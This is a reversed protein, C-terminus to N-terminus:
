QTPDMGNPDIVVRTHDTPDVLVSLRAGAATFRARREPTSFGVRTVATFGNGDPPTIDLTIDVVGAPGGGVMGAPISVEHATLVVATARQMGSPQALAAAAQEPTTGGGAMGPVPRGPAGTVVTRTTTFGATGSGSAAIREAEARAQQRGMERGTLVEDWIIRLRQPDARDILVPLEQGPYPWKSTPATCYHEVAVPAIGAATVVGDMRCNSYAAGSGGGSSATLRYTGRIPDTMRHNRIWNRAGV